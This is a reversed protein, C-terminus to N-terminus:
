RGLIFSPTEEYDMRGEAETYAYDYGEAPVERYSGLMQTTLNVTYLNPVPMKAKQRVEEHLTELVRTEKWRGTNIETEDGFGAHYGDFTALAQTPTRRGELMIAVGKCADSIDIAESRALLEREDDHDRTRRELEHKGWHWVKPGDATSTTLAILGENAGRVEGTINKGMVWALGGRYSDFWDYGYRVPTPNPKLSGEQLYFVIPVGGSFGIATGIRNTVGGTVPQTKTMYPDREDADFGEPTWWQLESVPTQRAVTSQPDHMDLEGEYINHTFGEIKGTDLEAEVASSLSTGRYLTDTM